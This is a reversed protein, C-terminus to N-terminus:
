RVKKSFSTEQLLFVTEQLLLTCRRLKTVYRERMEGAKEYDRLKQLDKREKDVSIQEAGCVM